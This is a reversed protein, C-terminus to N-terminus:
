PRRAKMRATARQFQERARRLRSAVTGPALDLVEAIAAMTEQEIEHLVFVARVDDELSELARDLLARARREDVLEDPREGAPAAPEDALEEHRAGRKRERRVMNVVVSLLYSREKGCAIADIRDLAIVFAEHALDEACAEGVGMRCAFRWLFDLHTALDAIRADRDRVEAAAGIPAAVRLTASASGGGIM